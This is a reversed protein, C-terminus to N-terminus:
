IYSQRGQPHTYKAIDPPDSYASKKRSSLLIFPTFEDTKWDVPHCSKWSSKWLIFCGILIVHQGAKGPFFRPSIKLCERCSECPDRAPIHGKRKCILLVEVDRLASGLYTSM